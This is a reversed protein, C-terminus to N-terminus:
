TYDLQLLRLNRHLIRDTLHPDLYGSHQVLLDTFRVDHGARRLSPLVQEHIRSQWRIEPLNRFLRVQRVVTAAGDRAPSRQGLVFAAKQEGVTAFLAAAQSEIEKRTDRRSGFRSRYKPLNGRL